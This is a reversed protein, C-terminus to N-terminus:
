QTLRIIQEKMMASVKHDSRSESATQQFTALATLYDDYASEYAGAHMEVFSAFRRTAYEYLRMDYTNLEAIYQKTQDTYLGVPYSMHNKRIYCPPTACGLVLGLGFMSENFQETIGMFDYERDLIGIAAELHEETCAGFPVDVGTIRRVMGNDFDLFTGTRLYADLSTRAIRIKWFHKTRLSRSIHEYHSIVMDVPHRVFTFFRVGPVDGLTRRARHGTVIQTDSTLVPPVDKKMQVLAAPSYQRSLADIVSVGGTKPIHEFCYM